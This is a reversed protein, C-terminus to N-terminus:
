ASRNVIALRALTSLGDRDVRLRHRGSEVRHLDGTAGVLFVGARRGLVACGGLQPTVDVPSGEASEDVSSPCGPDVPLRVAPTSWRVCTHGCAAQEVQEVV